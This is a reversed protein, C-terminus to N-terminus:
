IQTKLELHWAVGIHKILKGAQENNIADFIEKQDTYLVFSNKNEAM